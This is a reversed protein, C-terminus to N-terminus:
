QSIGIKHVMGKCLNLNFYGNIRKKELISILVRFNKSILDAVGQGSSAKEPNM